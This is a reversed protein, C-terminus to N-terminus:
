DLRLYTPGEFFSDWVLLLNTEDRPLRFCVDGTAEGNPFLEASIPDDIFGCSHDDDYSSYVQNRSGTLEFLFDDIQQAEDEASVNVVKVTILVMREDQAPEEFLSSNAEVEDAADSNVGVISVRWTDEVIVSQGRAVATARTGGPRNNGAAPTRQGGITVTMSIPPEDEDELGGGGSFEALEACNGLYAKGDREVILLAEEPGALSDDENELGLDSFFEDATIFKGEVKLRIATPDEPTVLIGEDTTEFSLKGLDVDEVEAEALQPLFLSIFGAAAAIDSAKVNERCEPAFSEIIEQANAEGTLLGFFNLVYQKAVEGARKESLGGGGDSGGGCAAVLVTLATVLGALPRLHTRHNV